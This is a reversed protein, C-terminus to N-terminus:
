TTNKLRQIPPVLSLLLPRTVTSLVRKRTDRAPSPVQQGPICPVHYMSKSGSEEKLTGLQRDIDPANTTCIEFPSQIYRVHRLTFLSRISWRSTQFAVGLLLLVVVELLLLLLITYSCCYYCSHIMVVVASNYTSCKRPLSIETVM